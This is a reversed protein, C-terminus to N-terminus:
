RLIKICDKIAQMDEHIQRYDFHQQATGDPCQHWLLDQCQSLTAQLTRALLRREKRIKKALTSTDM